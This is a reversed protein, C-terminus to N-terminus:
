LSAIVFQLDSALRVALQAGQQYRCSRLHVFSTFYGCCYAYKAIDSVTLSNLESELLTLFSEPQGDLSTLQPWPLNMGLGPFSDPRLDGLFEESKRRVRVDGSFIKQIRHM